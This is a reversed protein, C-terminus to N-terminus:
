EIHCGPPFIKPAEEYKDSVSIFRRAKESALFDKLIKSLTKKLGRFAEQLDKDLLEWECFNSTDGNELCVFSDEMIEIEIEGAKILM